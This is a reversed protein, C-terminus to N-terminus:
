RDDNSSGTFDPLEFNHDGGCAVMHGDEDEAKGTGECEECQLMGNLDEILADVTPIIGQDKAKNNWDKLTEVLEHLQKYSM